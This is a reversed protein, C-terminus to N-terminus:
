VGLGVEALKIQPVFLKNKCYRWFISDNGPNVACESKCIIAFTIEPMMKNYGSNEQPAAQVCM